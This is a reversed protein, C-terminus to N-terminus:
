SATHRPTDAVLPLVRYAVPTDLAIVSSTRMVGEVDVILDIVRQLDANSRAVVRCLMDDGGTITHVELVEPIAALLGSVPDHGAIQRIQLTVFATVQYGLAAPDIDPGFGTIVGNEVMRDLRAQVTGRAVGLRRSAELIGVRPEAALLSILRVDLGDITM